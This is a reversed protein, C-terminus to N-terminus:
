HSLLGSFYQVKYYLHPHYPIFVKQGSRPLLLHYTILMSLIQLNGLLGPYKENHQRLLDPIHVTSNLASLYSFRQHGLFKPFSAIREMCIPCTIKDPADM